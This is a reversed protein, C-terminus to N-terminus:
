RTRSQLRENSSHPVSVKGDASSPTPTASASIKRRAKSHSTLVLLAPKLDQLQYGVWKVALLPDEGRTRPANRWWVSRGALRRSVHSVGAPKCRVPSAGASSRRARCHCGSAHTAWVAPLVKVSGNLVTYWWQSTLRDASTVDHRRIPRRRDFDDQTSSRMREFSDGADSSSRRAYISSSSRRLSPQPM